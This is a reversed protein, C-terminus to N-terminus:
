QLSIRISFIMPLITYLSLGERLKVSLVNQGVLVATRPQTKSSFESLKASPFVVQCLRDQVNM